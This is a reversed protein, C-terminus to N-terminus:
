RLPEPVTLDSNKLLEQWVSEPVVVQRNVLLRELWEQAPANSPVGRLQSVRGILEVVEGDPLVLEMVITSITFDRPVLHQISLRLTTAIADNVRERADQQAQLQLTGSPTGFFTERDVTIFMVYQARTGKEDTVIEASPVAVVDKFEEGIISAISRIREDNDDGRITFDPRQYSVKIACALSALGIGLALLCAPAIKFWSGRM